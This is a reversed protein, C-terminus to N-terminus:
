KGMVDKMSYLGQKKGELFLAWECAGRAFCEWDYAHHTIELREGMLGFMVTHSNSIYVAIKAILKSMKGKPAIIIIKM